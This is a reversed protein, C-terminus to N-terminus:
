PPLLGFRRGQNSTIRYLCTTMIIPTKKIEQRVINEALSVLYQMQVTVGQRQAANRSM